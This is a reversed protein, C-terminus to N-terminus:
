VRNRASEAALQLDLESAYRAASFLFGQALEAGLEELEARQRSTEVGEAVVSIGLEKALSVVAAVVARDSSTEGLGQIFLNDIKIQDIPLIRLLAFSSAGAGFDDIAVCVGLSRLMRLSEVIPGPDRLLTPEPVELCLLPPPLGSADLARAVDSVLDPRTLERSSINVSVFIERGDKRWEVAQRCAQELVFRGIKSILGSGEAVKVFDGPGVLGRMPHEWRVLAECGVTRGSGLAVIPQYQVRLEGDGIADRLEDETSDNATQGSRMEEAFIQAQGRLDEAPNRTVDQTTGILRGPVGHGEVFSGRIIAVRVEGGPRVIRHQCAFPTKTAIADRVIEVYTERDEPHILPRVSEVTPTFEQPAVGHIEYLADSWRMRGSVPEFEWAGHDAFPEGSEPM